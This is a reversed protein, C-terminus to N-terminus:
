GTLFMKLLSLLNTKRQRRPPLKNFDLTLTVFCSPFFIIIFSCIVLTADRQFCFLFPVLTKLFDRNKHGIIDNTHQHVAWVHLFNNIVAHVPGAVDM